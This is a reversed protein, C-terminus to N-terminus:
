AASAPCRACQADTIHPSRSALRAGSFLRRTLSGRRWIWGCLTRKGVLEPLQGQAAVQARCQRRERVEASRRMSEADREDRPVGGRFAAVRVSM